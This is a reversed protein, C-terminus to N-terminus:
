SANSACLKAAEKASASPISVVFSSAEPLPLKRDTYTIWGNRDLYDICTQSVPVDRNTDKAVYGIYVWRYHRTPQPPFDAMAKHLLAHLSEPDMILGDVRRGEKNENFLANRSQYYVPHGLFEARHLTDEKGGLNKWSPDLLVILFAQKDMIFVDDKASTKKLHEILAHYTKESPVFENPNDFDLYFPVGAIMILTVGAALLKANIYRMLTPAMGYFAYAICPLVAAITYISHRNPNFPYLELIHLAIATTWLILFFLALPKCRKILWDLGFIFFLFGSIYPWGTLYPILIMFGMPLMVPDYILPTWGTIHSAHYLGNAIFLAALVANAAGWMMLRKFDKRILLGIGIASGAAFIVMVASYQTALALLASVGYWRLWHNSDDRADWFRMATYLTLGLFFLLMTYERILLSQILPGQWIAIFFACILGFTEGALYRGITFYIPIAAVGFILAVFRLLLESRDIHLLLSFFIRSLPPHADESYAHTIMQALSSHDSLYVHWGEDPSLHLGQVYWVRIIAAVLMIAILILFAHRPTLREVADLRLARYLM